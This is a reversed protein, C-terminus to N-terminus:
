SSRTRFAKSRRRCSGPDISGARAAGRGPPQRRSRRHVHRRGPVPVRRDAGAPRRHRVAGAGLAAPGAPAGAPAAAGRHLLRRDAPHQDSTARGARHAGIGAGRRPRLASLDRDHQQAAGAERQRRRPIRAVQQMADPDSAAAAELQRLETEIRLRAREYPDLDAVEGTLLYARQGIETDQLM